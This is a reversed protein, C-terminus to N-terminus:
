MGYDSCLPRSSIHRDSYPRQVSHHQHCLSESLICDCDCRSSRPNHSASSASNRLVCHLQNLKLRFVIQIFCFISGSLDKFLSPMDQSCLVLIPVLPLNDISQLSIFCKYYNVPCHLEYRHLEPFLLCFPKGLPSDIPM